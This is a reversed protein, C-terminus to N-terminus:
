ITKQIEYKAKVYKYIQTFTQIHTHMNLELILLTNQETDIPYLFM